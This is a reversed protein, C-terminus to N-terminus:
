GQSVNQPPLTVQCLWIDKELIEARRGILAALSRLLDAQDSASLNFYHEREAAAM